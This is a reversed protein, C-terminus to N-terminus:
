SICSFLVNTISKCSSGILFSIIKGLISYSKALHSKLGCDIISKSRKTSVNFSLGSITISSVDWVSKLPPSFCFM